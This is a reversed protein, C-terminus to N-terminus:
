GLGWKFASQWHPIIEKQLKKETLRPYLSNKM